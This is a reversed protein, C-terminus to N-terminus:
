SRPIFALTVRRDSAKGEAKQDGFFNVIIRHEPIGARTLYSKVEMARAKSLRLNAERNGSADAHGSLMLRHDSLAMWEIVENLRLQANLDLRTGGLPFVVSVEDTPLMGVDTGSNLPSAKGRESAMLSILERLLGIQEKMSELQAQRLEQEMRQQDQRLRDVEATLADVKSGQQELMALIRDALDGEIGQDDERFPPLIFNDDTALLNLTESSFGVELPALPDNTNFSRVAALLSDARASREAEDSHVMVMLNNGAFLKLENRLVLKVENIAAEIFLFRQDQGASGMFEPNWEESVELGRLDNLAEEVLISFGSFPQLEQFHYYRIADAVIADLDKKMQTPRSRLQLTEGDFLVSRDIYFDLADMVLSALRGEDGESAPEYYNIVVQHTGTNRLVYQMMEGEGPEEGLYHNIITTQQAFLGLHQTLMALCFFLRIRLRRM